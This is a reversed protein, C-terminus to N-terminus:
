RLKSNMESEMADMKKEMQNMRKEVKAMSDALRQEPTRCGLLAVGVSGAILVKAMRKMHAHPKSNPVSPEPLLDREALWEM